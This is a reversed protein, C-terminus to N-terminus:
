LEAVGGLTATGAGVTATDASTASLDPFANVRVYRLAKNLDAGVRAVGYMTLGGTTANALTLVTAAAVLTVWTTTDTSHDVGLAVVINKATTLVAKVPIEFVVSQAQILTTDIAAGTVTTADGTSAATISDPDLAYVSKTLGAIDRWLARSM